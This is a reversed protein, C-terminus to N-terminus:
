SQRFILLYLFHKSQFQTFIYKCSPWGLTFGGLSTSELCPQRCLQLGGWKLCLDPPNMSAQGLQIYQLTDLVTLKCINNDIWISNQSTGPPCAPCALTSIREAPSAPPSPPLCRDGASLPHLQYLHIFLNIYIFFVFGKRDVHQEDPSANLEKRRLCIRRQTM